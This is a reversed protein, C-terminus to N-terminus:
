KIQLKTKVKRMDDELNEVRNVLGNEFKTFRDDLMEYNHDVKYDVLDIKRDLEDVKQDLQNVKQDLEDVKQDLQDIKHGIQDFKQAFLKHTEDMKHSLTHLSDALVELTITKKM